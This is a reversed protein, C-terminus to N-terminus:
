WGKIIWKKSLNTSELHTQFTGLSDMQLSVVLMFPIWFQAASVTNDTISYVIFGIILVIIYKKKGFINNRYYTKFIIAMIWIFIFLGIIGTEYIFRVYENHAATFGQDIIYNGTITKLSGIGMGIIRHEESLELLTTWAELRNTTNLMGGSFTRELLNGIAESVFYLAIPILLTLKALVKRTMNKAIDIAYPMILIAAFITGGRSDTFLIITLDVLALTTYKNDRYVKSLTIAAMYGMGCWFPVQSFLGVTVIRGDYFLTQYRIIGLIILVIPTWAMLRLARQREYESWNISFVLVGALINSFSTILDTFRYSSNNGFLLIYLSIVFLLMLLILPRWEARKYIGKKIISLIACLLVFLKAIFNYDFATIGFDGMLMLTALVIGFLPNVLMM